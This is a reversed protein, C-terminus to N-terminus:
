ENSGGEDRHPSDRGSNKRGQAAAIDKKGQTDRDRARQQEHRCYMLPAGRFFRILRPSTSLMVVLTIFHVDRAGIRSAAMMDPARDNYLVGVSAHGHRRSGWKEDHPEGHGHPRPRPESLM